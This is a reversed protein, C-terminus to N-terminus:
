SRAERFSMEHARGLICCSWLLFLSCRLVQACHAYDAMLLLLFCEGWVDSDVAQGCQSRMWHTETGDKSEHVPHEISHRSHNLSNGNHDAGASEEKQLANLNGSRQKRGRGLGQQLEKSKSVRYRVWEECEILANGNTDINGFLIEIHDGTYGLRSLGALLEDFTLEHDQNKDQIM